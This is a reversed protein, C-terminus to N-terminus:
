KLVGIFGTGVYRDLLNENAADFFVCLFCLQSVVETLKSLNVQNFNHGVAVRALPSAKCENRKIVVIGHVPNDTLLHAVFIIHSKSITAINM